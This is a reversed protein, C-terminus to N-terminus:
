GGSVPPIVAVDDGDRLVADSSIYECNLALRSVRLLPAISPNRKMLDDLLGRSTSGSPLTLPFAEAGLRYRLQAFCLVKVTITPALASM